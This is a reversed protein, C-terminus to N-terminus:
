LFIIGTAFADEGQVEPRIFAGLHKAQGLGTSIILPVFVCDLPRHEPLAQTGDCSQQRFSVLWAWGIAFSSRPRFRLRMFRIPTAEYITHPLLRDEGM